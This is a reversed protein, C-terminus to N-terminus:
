IVWLNHPPAMIQESDDYDDLNDWTKIWEIVESDIIQNELENPSM